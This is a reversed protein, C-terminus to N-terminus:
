GDKRCGWYGRLMSDAPLQELTGEHSLNSKLLFLRGHANDGLSPCIPGNHLFNMLSSVPTVALPIAM